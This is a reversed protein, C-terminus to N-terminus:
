QPASFDTQNTADWDFACRFSLEVARVVGKDDEDFSFNVPEPPETLELGNKSPVWTDVSIGAQGHACLSAIVASARRILGLSEDTLSVVERQEQDLMTPCHIKVVFGGDVTLGGLAAGSFAGARFQGSVPAIVFTHNGPNPALRNPNLSLYCNAETCGKLTDRLRQVVSLLVDGYDAQRSEGAAM